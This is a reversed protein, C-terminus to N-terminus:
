AESEKDSSDIEANQSAWEEFHRDAADEPSEIENHLDNNM